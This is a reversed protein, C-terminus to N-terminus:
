LCCAACIRSGYRCYRKYQKIPKTCALIAIAGFGYVPCLLNILFCKKSILIGRTVLTYLTELLFGIFSYLVFYMFYAMKGRREM